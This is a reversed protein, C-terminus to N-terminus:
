LVIKPIRKDTLQKGLDCPQNYFGANNYHHVRFSDFQQEEPLVFLEPFRLGCTEVFSLGSFIKDIKEIWAQPDRQLCLQSSYDLHPNTLKSFQKDSLRGEHINALAGDDLLGEAKLNSLKELDFEQTTQRGSSVLDTNKLKARELCVKVIRKTCHFLVAADRENLFFKSLRLLKMQNKFYQQQVSMNTLRRSRANALTSISEIDLPQTKNFHRNVVELAIGLSLASLFNVTTDSKLDNLIIKKSETSLLSSCNIQYNDM